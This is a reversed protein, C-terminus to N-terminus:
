EYRAEQSLQTSSMKQAPLPPTWGAFVAKDQPRHLGREIFEHLLEPRQAMCWAGFIIKRQRDAVRDKANQRKTAELIAKDLQQRQEILRELKTTM